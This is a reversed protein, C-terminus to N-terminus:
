VYPTYDALKTCTTKMCEQNQKNYVRSGGLFFVFFICCIEM